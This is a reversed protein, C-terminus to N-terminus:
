NTILAPSATLRKKLKKATKLNCNSWVMERINVLRLSDITLSEMKVKTLGQCSGMYYIWWKDIERPSSVTMNRIEINPFVITKLEKRVSFGSRDLSGGWILYPRKSDAEIDCNRFVLDFPTYASYSQDFNMPVFNIFRCGEYSLVGYFSTVRNFLNRFVTNVCYIDRGYCHVDFRNLDSDYIHVLNTNNTGFVGWKADCHMNRFTSNWTNNMMIGYGWRVTSSYTGNIRVDNMTLNSSDLITIACDGIIDTEPTDIEVNDIELNNIGQVRLLWIMQKSESLRVFKLNKVIKKEPTAIYYVAKPNSNKNNYQAIPRSKSKGNEVLFLDKRIVKEGFGRREAVWPNEDEVSVIYLGSSLSKYKTFNGRDINKKSLEVPHSAEKMGFLYTLVADNKVTMECGAFDTYSGLPIDVPTKPIEVYLQKVGEYTVGIGKKVAENHVKSLIAYVETGTKAELVGYDKPNLMDAMCILRIILILAIAILKKM